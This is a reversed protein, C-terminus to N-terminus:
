LITCATSSKVKARQSSFSLAFAQAQVMPEPVENREEGKLVQQLVNNPKLAALYNVNEPAFIIYALNKAVHVQSIPCHAHFSAVSKRNQYDWIIIQKDNSCSVLFRGNCAFQLQTIFDQHRFMSHLLAGTKMSWALINRFGATVLTKSDPAFEASVVSSNHQMRFKYKGTCLEM